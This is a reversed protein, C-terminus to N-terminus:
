RGQLQNFVSRSIMDGKLTEIEQRLEAMQEHLVGFKQDMNATIKVTVDRIEKVLYSVTPDVSQGKGTYPDQPPSTGKNLPYAGYSSFVHGEFGPPLVEPFSPIAPMGTSVSSGKGVEVPSHVEQNQLDDHSSDGVKDDDNKESSM